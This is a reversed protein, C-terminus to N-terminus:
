NPSIECVVIGHLLPLLLLASLTFRIKRSLTLDKDYSLSSGNFNQASAILKLVRTDLTVGRLPFSRSKGHVIKVDKWMACLESIVQNSFERGNDSHLIAPAGFTLFIQLLHYAVEEATKTKLPRLQVFKTLHDQYVMIFKYEGDRHSQLDILDVQCRSNLESSIMPKVVIGKKPASHKMQCQKCLNLYLMVVEYTINKYKVQLDKLLRTRVGHGIRTHTEFLISFMEDNTVYYQMNTEGPKLSVILKEEDNMKLVDFRRLRRYDLPTSCKTKASLVESLIKSYKKKKQPVKEKEEAGRAQWTKIELRHSIHLVSEMLRIWSHLPSIGFTLFEKSLEKKSIVRLNNM